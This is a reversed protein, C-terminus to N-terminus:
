IFLNGCAPPKKAHYVHNTPIPAGCKNQLTTHVWCSGDVSNFDIAHCSNYLKCLAVCRDATMRYGVLYGGVVRSGPYGLWNVPLGKFFVAYEDTTVMSVLDRMPDCQKVEDTV